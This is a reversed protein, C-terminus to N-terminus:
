DREPLHLAEWQERTADVEDAVKLLETFLEACLEDICEVEISLYAPDAGEGRQFAAVAAALQKRKEHLLTRNQDWRRFAASLREAGLM